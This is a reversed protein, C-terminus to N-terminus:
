IVKVTPESRRSFITHNGAFKWEGFGLLCMFLLMLLRHGRRAPHCMVSGGIGEIQIDERNEADESDEARGLLPKEEDQASM